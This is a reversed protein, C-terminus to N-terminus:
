MLNQKSYDSKQDLTWTKEGIVGVVNTTEAHELDQKLRARWQLSTETDCV